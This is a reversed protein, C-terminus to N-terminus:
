WELRRSVARVVGGVTLALLGAAVLVTAPGTRLEDAHAVTAFLM